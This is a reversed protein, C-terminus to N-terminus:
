RADRPPAAAVATALSRTVLAVFAEGAVALPGSNDLEVAGEVWVEASRALRAEIAAATERGRGALRAALVPLPATVQVVVVRVYRRRAAEVAARSVNAVVSGGNAITADIIRPLAYGLGHARWHLAFAGREALDAFEAPSLTDHDELAADATRTVVRRAFALGARDGLARRAYGILSDKGAGSPGVVLVLTGPGIRQFEDM